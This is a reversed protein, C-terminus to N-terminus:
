LTNEMAFSLTDSCNPTSPENAKNVKARKKPQQTPKNKYEEYPRRVMQPDKADREAQMVLIIMPNMEIEKGNEM